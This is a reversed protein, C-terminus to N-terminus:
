TFGTFLKARNPTWKNDSKLMLFLPVLTGLYFALMFDFMLYHMFLSKDKLVWFVKRYMILMVLQRMCWLAFVMWTEYGCILLGVFLAYHLVLSLSIVALLIKDTVKYANGASLHRKKQRFWAKWSSKGKSYVFTEPHYICSTNKSTAAANVLLDDDGSAIHLHSDFGGARTYVSKRIALNRGVGMYPNGLAALTFYQMATAITEFRTWRNLLGPESTDMPAFGLVMEKQQDLSLPALMRSIWHKSVPQCDADTFLLLAYEAKKIGEALAMKKGPHNKSDISVIKLRGNELAFEQLVALTEDESADNVVILEWPGSYQQALIGPLNVRINPAENRACIIVTVGPLSIPPKNGPAPKISFVYWVLIAYFVQVLTALVFLWLFATFILERSFISMIAAM